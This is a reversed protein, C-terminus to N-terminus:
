TVRSGSTPPTITLEIPVGESLSLAHTFGFTYFNSPASIPYCIYYWLRQNQLVIRRWQTCVRALVMPSQVVTSSPLQNRLDEVEEAVCEHFILILIEPPLHRLPHLIGERKYKISQLGAQIMTSLTAVAESMQDRLTETNHLEEVLSVVYKEVHELPRRLVLLLTALTDEVMNWEQVFPATSSLLSSLVPYNAEQSLLENDLQLFLPSIQNQIQTGIDELIKTSAVM